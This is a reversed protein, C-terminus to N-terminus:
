RKGVACACKRCRMRCIELQLDGTSTQVQMSVTPISTAGRFSKMRAGPVSVIGVTLPNKFRGRVSPPVVVQPSTATTQVEVSMTTRTIPVSHRQVGAGLPVVIGVALPLDFLRGCPV